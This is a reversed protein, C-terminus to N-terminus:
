DIICFINEKIEINEEFDKIETQNCPSTDHYQNLLTTNHHYNYHTIQIKKVRKQKCLQLFHNFVSSIADM